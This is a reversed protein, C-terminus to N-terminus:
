LKPQKKIDEDEDLFDFDGVSSGDNDDLLGKKKAPTSSTRTREEPTSPKSSAKVPLVQGDDLVDDSDIAEPRGDIKVVLVMDAIAILDGAALESQQVRRKNVFTGNSSGLDRINLRGSSQSIECHHRSVDSSPIRIQCDTQRGVVMVPKKVPIEAQKGDSTVLVLTANM